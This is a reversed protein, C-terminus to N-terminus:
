PKAEAPLTHLQAVVELDELAEENQVLSLEEYLDLRQALALDAGQARLLSHADNSAVPVPQVSTATSPTTPGLALMLAAAAVAVTGGAFAFRWWPAGFPKAHEDAARLAVRAAFGPRPEADVAPMLERATRLLEGEDAGNRDRTGDSM